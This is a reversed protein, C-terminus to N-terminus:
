WCSRQAYTRKRMRALPVSRTSTRLLFVPSSRSSTWVLRYTKQNQDLSNSPSKGVVVICSHDSVIKRFSNATFWPFLLLSLCWCIYVLWFNIRYYIREWNMILFTWLWIERGRLVWARRWKVNHSWILYLLKINMWLVNRRGKTCTWVIYWCSCSSGANLTGIGMWRSAKLESM